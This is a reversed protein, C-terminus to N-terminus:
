LKKLLQQKEARKPLVIIQPVILCDQKLVGLAQQEVAVGELPLFEGSRGCWARGPNSLGHLAYEAARIDFDTIYCTGVECPM